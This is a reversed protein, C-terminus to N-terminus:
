LALPPLSDCRHRLLVVRSGVLGPRAQAEGDDARQQGRRRALAPLQSTRELVEGLAAPRVRQRTLGNPKGDRRDLTPVVAGAGGREIGDSSQAVAHTAVDAALGTERRQQALGQLALVVVVGGPGHLQVVVVEFLEDPTLGSQRIGERVLEPNPRLHIAPESTTQKLQSVFSHSRAEFESERDKQMEYASAWRVFETSQEFGEDDLLGQRYLSYFDRSTVGYKREYAQTRVRLAQLDEILEYLTM